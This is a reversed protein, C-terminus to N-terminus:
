RWGSVLLSTQKLQNLTYYWREGDFSLFILSTSDKSPNPNPNTLRRKNRSASPYRTNMSLARVSVSLSHACPCRCHTRARVGVTLARVSRCCEHVAMHLWFHYWTGPIPSPICCCNPPLSIYLMYLLVVARVLVRATPTCNGYYRSAYWTGPINYIYFGFASCNTRCSFCTTKAHVQYIRAQYVLHLRMRYAIRIIDYWLYM